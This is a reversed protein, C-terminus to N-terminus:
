FGAGGTAGGDFSRKVDNDILVILAWIGMPLGLICCGACPLMAAVAGTLSLGWGRLQRMQWGGYITLGSLALSVVGVAMWLGVGPLAARADPDALAAVGFIGIFLMWLLTWAAGLGGAVMLGIAPASVRTAPDQQM